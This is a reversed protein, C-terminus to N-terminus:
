WTKITRVQKSIEVGNLLIIIVEKGNEIKRISSTRKEKTKM